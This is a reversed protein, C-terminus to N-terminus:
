WADGWPSVLGGHSGGFEPYWVDISKFPNYFFPVQIDQQFNPDITVRGSVLM